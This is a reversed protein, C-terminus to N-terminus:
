KEPRPDCIYRYAFIQTAFDDEMTFKACSCQTLDEFSDPGPIEPIVRSIEINDCGYNECPISTEFTKIAEDAVGEPLLEIGAPLMVSKLIMKKHYIM